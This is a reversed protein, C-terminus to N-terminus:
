LSVGSRRDAELHVRRWRDAPKEPAPPRGYLADIIQGLRPCVTSWLAWLAAILAGVFVGAPIFGILELDESAQDQAM